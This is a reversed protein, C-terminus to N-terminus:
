RCCRKKKKPTEATIEDLRLKINENKKLKYSSTKNENNQNQNNSHDKTQNNCAAFTTLLLATIIINRM